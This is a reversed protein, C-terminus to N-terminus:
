EHRGGGAAAPHPDREDSGGRFLRQVHLLLDFNGSARIVGRLLAATPNVTGAVVGDLVPGDLRVVCDAPGGDRTVKVTGRDLTIFWRGERGKEGTDIRLTGRVRGLRADFGQENVREFFARTADGM